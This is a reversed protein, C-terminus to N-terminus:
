GVRGRLRVLIADVAEETLPPPEAEAPADLAWVAMLRAGALKRVRSPGRQLPGGHTLSQLGAM